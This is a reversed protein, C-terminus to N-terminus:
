KAQFNPSIALAEIQTGTLGANQWYEVGRNIITSTNHPYPHLGHGNSENVFNWTSGSLLSQLPMISLLTKNQNMFTGPFDGKVFVSDDCIKANKYGDKTCFYRWSDVYHKISWFHATQNSIGEDLLAGDFDSGDKTNGGFVFDSCYKSNNYNDETCFYKWGSVYGDICATSNTMASHDSQGTTCYVAQVDGISPCGNDASDLNCIDPIYLYVIM